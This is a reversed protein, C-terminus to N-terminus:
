LSTAKKFLGRLSQLLESHKRTLDNLTWVKSSLGKTKILGDCCAQIAGQYIASCVFDYWSDTLGIM